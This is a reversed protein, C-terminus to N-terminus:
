GNWKVMKGLSPHNLTSKTDAGMQADKSLRDYKLMTIYTEGKVNVSNTNDLKIRIASKAPTTNKVRKNKAKVETKASSPRGRRVEVGAAKLEAIRAKRLANASNPNAKRGRRVVEGNEMAAKLRALKQQRASNPDINRGRGEKKIAKKGTKSKKAKPTKVTTVEEDNSANPMKDAVVEDAEITPTPIHELVMERNKGLKVVHPNKVSNSM